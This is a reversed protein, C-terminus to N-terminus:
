DAAVFLLHYFTSNFVDVVEPSLQTPVVLDVVSFLDAMKHIIIDVDLSGKLFDLLWFYSLQQLLIFVLKGIRIQSAM